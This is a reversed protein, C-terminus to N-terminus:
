IADEEGLGVLIEGHEFPERDNTERPMHKSIPRKTYLDTM